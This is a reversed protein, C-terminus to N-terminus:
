QGAESPTEPKAQVDKPACCCCGYGSLAKIALAAGLITLAINAWSVPLWAFVIVLLALVCGCYCRSM